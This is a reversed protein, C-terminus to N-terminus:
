MGFDQTFFHSAHYRLHHVIFTSIFFYSHDYGERRNVILEVGKSRCAEELLEPKLQEVLFNDALGQDIMIPKDFGRKEILACADYELWKARNDGLYGKFAKEGWACQSPAVIPAFASVSCYQQPNKLALILAGHGGMSHGSIAQRTLDLQSSFEKAIFEPLEKQIYDYMRYHSKYPAETANVYFGAGLGFDWAGEADDPVVDGRPSTDPMIIAIGLEAAMRQAGAKFVFNQDNCTLGSLWWLVPVPNHQSQPPLFLSFTMTCSLVQSPHQIRLQRGEFCLSDEIVEM